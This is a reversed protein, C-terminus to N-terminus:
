WWLTDYWMGNAQSFILIRLIIDVSHTNSECEHLQFTTLQVMTLQPGGTDILDIMNKLISWFVTM